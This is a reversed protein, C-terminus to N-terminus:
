YVKQGENFFLQHEDSHITDEITRKLNWNLPIILLTNNIFKLKIYIFKLDTISIQFASNFIRNVTIFM